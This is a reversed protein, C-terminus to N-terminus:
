FLKKNDNDIVIESMLSIEPGHVRQTHPCNKKMKFVLFQKMLRLYEKSSFTSLKKDNFKNYILAKEKSCLALGVVHNILKFLKEAKEYKKLAKKFITDEDTQLLFESVKSRYVYGMSFM